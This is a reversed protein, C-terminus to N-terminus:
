SQNWVKLIWQGDGRQVFHNLAANDQAFRLAAMVPINLLATMAIRIATGHAVLVARESNVTAFARLLRERVEHHSEGEPCACHEDVVWRKYIEEDEKRIDLFARGEWRGYNMERLDDLPVIELGTADAIARATSMARGLPSSYLATPKMEKLRQALRLVQERGRESLDSDSWGQTIRAVNHETEGHRVLILERKM